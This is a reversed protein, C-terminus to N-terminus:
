LDDIVSFPMCFKPSAYQLPEVPTCLAVSARKTRQRLALLHNTLGLKRSSLCRCIYHMEWHHLSGLRVQVSPQLTEM